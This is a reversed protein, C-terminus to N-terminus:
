PRTRQADAPRTDPAYKATLRAVTNVNRFTASARLTKEFAAGTFKSESQRGACWWYVERGHLHLDDFETRLALLAEAERPGPAAALFGVNLSGGSGLREKAFPRYGAVAAVEAVTRLFTKVEYGLARRLHDELTRELAALNRARTEFIVNGSAIFTEVERCGAAAFLDRLREMTVIHGGVNIARLFAIVKAM